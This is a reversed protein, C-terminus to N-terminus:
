ASFQIHPWYQQNHFSLPLEHPATSSLIQENKDFSVDYRGFSLSWTSETLKTKSEFLIAAPLEAYVQWGGAVSRVQYKFIPISVSVDAITYNKARFFSESPWRLQLNFGNPAVHLEYYRDGALDRFFIEFVDGLDWIHQGNATAKSCLDDDKLDAFILVNEGDHAISVTAPRFQADQESLWNQAYSMSPANEFAMSLANWDQTNPHPIKPIQLTTTM